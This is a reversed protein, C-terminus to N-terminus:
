RGSAPVSEPESLEAASKRTAVISVGAVIFAGAVLARTGIREGLQVWQLAAAILPQLYIYVSVLTPTSRGLAWATLSYAVITPLLLVVAV